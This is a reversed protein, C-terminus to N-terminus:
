EGDNSIAREWRLQFADAPIRIQGGPTRMYALNGDRMWRRVTPTRVGFLEAVEKVKLFERM